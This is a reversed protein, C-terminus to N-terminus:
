AMVGEMCRGQSSYCQHRCQKNNSLDQPCLELYVYEPDEVLPEVPHARGDKRERLERAKRREEKEVWGGYKSSSGDDIVEKVNKYAETERIPRTSKELLAGTVNATKRVGKVVSTDWTWAAGKGVAGATTKLVKSTTGTVASTSAEYAQRARKVNENETFQHASSALAKTSENWEKSAKFESQLTETFVQWPSKDGHPPPPAAEEKKENKKGEGDEKGEESKSEDKSDEESAKKESDENKASAEEKPAEATETKKEQALRVGNHFGRSAIIGTQINEPLFRSRLPALAPSVASRSFSLPSAHSKASGAQSCLRRCAASQGYVSRVPFATQLSANAPARAASYRLGNM